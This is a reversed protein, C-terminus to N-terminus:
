PAKAPQRARYVQETAAALDGKVGRRAVSLGELVLRPPRLFRRELRYGLDYIAADTRTDGDALYTTAIGVPLRRDGVDKDAGDDAKRLGAAIWGAEIRAAGTIEVPHDRVEAPFYLTQGQIAQDAHVPALRVREGDPDAVGTLVFAPGTAARQEATQRARDNLRRETHSEWFNLAAVLVAIVGVVESIRIWSWWAKRGSSPTPESM